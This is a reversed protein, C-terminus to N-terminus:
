EPVVDDPLERRIIALAERAADRELSSRAQILDVLADDSLTDLETKTVIEAM